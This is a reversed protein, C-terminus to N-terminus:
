GRIRKKDPKKVTVEVSDWMKSYKDVQKQNKATKKVSRIYDRKPLGSEKLTKIYDKQKKNANVFIFVTILIWIVAFIIALVWQRFLIAILAAVGPVILGAYTLYKNSPKPKLNERGYMQAYLNQQYAKTPRRYLNDRKAM